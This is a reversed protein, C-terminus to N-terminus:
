TFWVPPSTFTTSGSPLRAATGAPPTSTNRSGRAQNEAAAKERRGEQLLKNGIEWLRKM